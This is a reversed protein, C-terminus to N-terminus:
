ALIQVCTLKSVILFITDCHSPSIKLSLFPHNDLLEGKQFSRKPLSYVEM